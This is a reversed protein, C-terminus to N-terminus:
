FAALPTDPAEDEPREDGFWMANWFAQRALEAVAQEMASPADGAAKVDGEPSKPPQAGAAKMLSALPVAGDVAGVLLSTGAQWAMANITM